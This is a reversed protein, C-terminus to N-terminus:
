VAIESTTSLRELKLNHFLKVTQKNTEKKKECYNTLKQSKEQQTLKLRVISNIVLLKIIQNSNHDMTAPIYENLLYSHDFM